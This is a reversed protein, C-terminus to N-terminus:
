VKHFTVRKNSLDPEMKYGCELVENPFGAKRGSPNWYVKYKYASDCLEFGLIQEIETFSLTFTNKTQRKLYYVFNDFKDM